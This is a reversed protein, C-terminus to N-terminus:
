DENANLTHMNLFYIMEHYRLHEMSEKQEIDAISHLTRSQTIM